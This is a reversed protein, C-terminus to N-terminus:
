DDDGRWWNPIGFTENHKIVWDATHRLVELAEEVESTSNQPVADSV